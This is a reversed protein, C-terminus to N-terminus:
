IIINLLGLAEYTRRKTYSATRTLFCCSTYSLWASFLILVIGLLAGCQKTTLLIM